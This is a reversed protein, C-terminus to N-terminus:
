IVMLDNNAADFRKHEYDTRNFARIVRIGILGERLVRNITDIKIQMARFLPVAKFAIVFIILALLPVVVVIVLSLTADLSVAMIIGGIAMIPATVMMRLIMLLVQMVQNVDNTTRTILTATGLKDFEHLSYGSVRTFLTGRLDRGFGVAIQASLLTGVIACVAGVAAVLLMIGGVRWIYDTDNQVVGNDIIDAMLSPLYLDAMAQLFLLVLTAGAAVSFPKLFRSLRLM